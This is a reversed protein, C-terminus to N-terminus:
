FSKIKLFIYIIMCIMAITFFILAFSYLQLFYFIWGILLSLYWSVTIVSKIM